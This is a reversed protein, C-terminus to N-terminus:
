SSKNQCSKHLWNTVGKEENEWRLCVSVCVFVAGGGDGGNAWPNEFYIASSSLVFYNAIDQLFYNSVRDRKGGQAQSQSGLSSSMTRQWPSFVFHGRLTTPLVIWFLPISHFKVCQIILRRFLKGMQESFVWLSMWIGLVGQLLNSSDERSIIFLFVIFHM